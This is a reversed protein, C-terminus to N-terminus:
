LQFLRSIVGCIGKDEIQVVFFGVTILIGLICGVFGAMFSKLGKGFIWGLLGSLTIGFLLVPTIGYFETAANKCGAILLVILIIVGFLIGSIFLVANVRTEKLTPIKQLSPEVTQQQNFDDLLKKNKDSQQPQYFQRHRYIGIIAAIITAIAGIISAIIIESM